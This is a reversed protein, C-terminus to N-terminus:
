ELVLKCFEVGFPTLKYTPKQTGLNGNPRIVLIIGERELNSLGELLGAEIDYRGDQKFGFGKVHQEELYQELSKGSKIHQEKDREYASIRMKTQPKIVQDDLRKIAIFDDSELGDLARYMREIRFRERDTSSAFERFINKIAERKEKHRQEMFSNFTRRLGERFGETQLDEETFRGDKIFELFELTRRDNLYSMYRNAGMAVMWTMGLVPDGLTLLAGWMPGATALEADFDKEEMSKKIKTLSKKRAKSDEKDAM